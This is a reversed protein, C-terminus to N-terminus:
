PKRIRQGRKQRDIMERRGISPSHDSERTEDKPKRAKARDLGNKLTLWDADERSLACAEYRLPGSGTGEYELTIPRRVRGDSCEGLRARVTEASAPAPCRLKKEPKGVPRM